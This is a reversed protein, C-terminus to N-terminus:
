ECASEATLWEIGDLVEAASQFRDGPEKELLGDLIPQLAAVTAPLRPIQTSLHAEPMSINTSEHSLPETLMQYFIVGASYLDRSPDVTGHRTSEPSQDNLDDSPTAFHPNVGLRGEFGFDTLVLTDDERFLLNAPKLNRHLIGHAHVAKLGQMIQALYGVADQQSIGQRIREELNGGACHETAVFVGNEVIGQKLVRVVNAHELASLIGYEHPFRTLADPEVNATLPVIRLAVKRGSAEDTAPGLWERSLVATRQEIRFGPVRPETAETSAAAEAPVVAEASVVTEASVVAEVSVAAEAPVIAEAPVAAEAPVVAEASVVAEAFGGRQVQDLCEFFRRPSLDIKNLVAAAGAQHAELRQSETLEDSILVIAPAAPNRRMARLWEIGRDHRNHLRQELLVVDFQAWDYSENPCGRAWLYSVIQLDPRMRGACFRLFDRLEGSPDIVLAKNLATYTAM